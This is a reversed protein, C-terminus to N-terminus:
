KVGRGKEEDEEDQKSNQMEAVIRKIEEFQKENMIGNYTIAFLLADEKEHLNSEKLINYIRAVKYRSIYKGNFNYAFYGVRLAKLWPFEQDMKEALENLSSNFSHYTEDSNNWSNIAETFEEQNKNIIDITGTKEQKNEETIGRYPKDRYKPTERTIEGRLRPKGGQGTYPGEAIFRGRDEDYAGLLEGDVSRVMNSAYINYFMIDHPDSHDHMKSLNNLIYEYGRYDIISIKLM